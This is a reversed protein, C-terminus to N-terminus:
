AVPEEGPDKPRYLLSKWARVVPQDFFNPDPFLPYRFVVGIDARLKKAFSKRGVNGLTGFSLDTKETHSRSALKKARAREFERYERALKEDPTGGNVVKGLEVKLRAMGIFKVFAVALDGRIGLGECMANVVKTQVLPDKILELARAENIAWAEVEDNMGSTKGSRWFVALPNRRFFEDFRQARSGASM